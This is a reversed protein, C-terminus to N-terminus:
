GYLRSEFFAGHCGRVFCDERMRWEAILRGRQLTHKHPACLVAWAMAEPAADPLIVSGANVLM